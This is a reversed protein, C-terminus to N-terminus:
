NCFEMSGSEPDFSNHINYWSNRLTEKELLQVRRNFCATDVFWSQPFSLHQPSRNNLDNQEASSKSM